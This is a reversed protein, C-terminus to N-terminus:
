HRAPLLGHTEFLEQLKLQALRYGIDHRRKVGAASFDRFSGSEDSSLSLGAKEMLDPDTLDIDTIANLTKFRAADHVRKELSPDLSGAPVVVALADITELLQNITNANASDQRLRNGYRLESLRDNVEIMSTPPARKKRFLNMVVLIRDVDNSGSFADIADGLPTNDIVGGDWFSADPFAIAPFGPPLSGSALVHRPGIEMKTENERPHNRFRILEGSSVDVATVVFRTKSANLSAFDVHKKLTGLMPDTDYFNTWNFFNWIDRRPMYFGPVGFLALNRSAAAWWYSPADLSLDSWLSRLRDRADARDKAGVVCAANIAGISVGTVATLRVTRGPVDIEDMLELLAIMAGFEYAGLAGGGQLVVGIEVNDKAVQGM